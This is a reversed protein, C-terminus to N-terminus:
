VGMLRAAKKVWREQHKSKAYHAWKYRAQPNKDPIATKIEWYQRKAYPTRWIMVGEKFRTATQSSAILAGEREKAYQNCDALIVETLQPLIKNFEGTVRATVANTDIKVLTKAM